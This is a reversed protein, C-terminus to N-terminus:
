EDGYHAKRFEPTKMLEREKTSFMGGKSPARFLLRKQDDDLDYWCGAAEALAVTDGTAMYGSLGERIACVSGLNDSLCSLYEMDPASNQATIAGALEDASCIETGALDPHFFALARGVASTECNELASTQNIRSAERHEEAHGTALVEGQMDAIEAKMIVVEDTVDVISTIIRMGGEVMQHFDVLRRAVTKYEKGRFNVIGTEATM